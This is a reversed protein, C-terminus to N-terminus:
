RSSIRGRIMLFSLNRQRISCLPFSQTTLSSIDLIVGLYRGRTNGIDLHDPLNAIVDTNMSDRQSLLQIEKERDPM